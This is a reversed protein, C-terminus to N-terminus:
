KLVYIDKDNVIFSDSSGSLFLEESDDFTIYGVRNIYPLEYKTFKINDLYDNNNSMSDKKFYNSYYATSENESTVILLAYESDKELIILENVNEFELKKEYSTNVNKINVTKNNNLMVEFSYSDEELLNDIVKEHNKQNYSNLKYSRYNPYHLIYEKPMDMESYKYCVQYNDYDPALKEYPLLLLGFMVIMLITIVWNNNTKKKLSFEKFDCKKLIYIAGLIWIASVIFTSILEVIVVRISPTNYTCEKVLNIRGLYISFDYFGHLFIVAWINKTKFYLSSLLVGLTTANIIQLITEFLSQNYLNTIHMVGFVLSSLVISTIIEKKNSSFRELFENLLWGRCLFEEAVGVFVCLFIVNVLKGLDVSGINLLSYGFNWFSILLMPIALCISEWFGEKKESFVYSNNFLLMVILVCISYFVEIIVDDGYKFLLSTSAFVNSCIMAFVNIVLFVILMKVFFLILNKNNSERNM